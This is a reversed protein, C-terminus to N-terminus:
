QKRVWGYARRHSVGRLRLRVYVQALMALQVVGICVLSKIIVTDLSAGESLFYIFPLAMLILLGM